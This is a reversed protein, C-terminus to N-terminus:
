CCLVQAPQMSQEGALVLNGCLYSWLTFTKQRTSQQNHQKPLTSTASGNKKAAIRSCMLVKTSQLVFRVTPNKSAINCIIYLIAAARLVCYPTLKKNYVRVVVAYAAQTKIPYM